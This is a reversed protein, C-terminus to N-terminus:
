IKELVAVAELACAEDQSVDASGGVGVAGVVEGNQTVPVGGDIVTLEGGFLSNIGFYPKNPSAYDGLNKTPFKLTAATFAKAFAFKPSIVLAGDMRLTAIEAGHEDVVCTTILVGLERAKKEAAEIAEIANKTTIM